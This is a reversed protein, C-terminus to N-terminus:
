IDWDMYGRHSLEHVVSEIRSLDKDSIVVWELSYSIEYKM